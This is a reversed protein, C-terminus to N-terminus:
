FHARVNVPSRIHTARGDLALGLFGVDGEGDIEVARFLRHNRCADPEELVNKLLDGTVTEQVQLNGGPAVQVDVIMVGDLVYADREALRDLLGKSVALSDPTIRGGM